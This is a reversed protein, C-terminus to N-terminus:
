DEWVIGRKAWMKTIQAEVKIWHKVEIETTKIYHEKSRVLAVRKDKTASSNGYRAAGLWSTSDVSYFPYRQLLSNATVGLGHVKITDRTHAFVYDFFDTRADQSGQTGATGGTAIYDYGDKIFNHLLKGNGEKYDSEHYIPIIYANTHKELYKQNALTEDLDNTDLNFAYKVAHNNIYNAYEAVSIIIGKTRAVFGGSDLLLCSFQSSPQKRKLTNFSELRYHAENEVLINNYVAAGDAGAFHLRM